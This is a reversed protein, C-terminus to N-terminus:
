GPDPVVNKSKLPSCFWKVMTPLGSKERSSPKTKSATVDFYMIASGNGNGVVASVISTQHLVLLV